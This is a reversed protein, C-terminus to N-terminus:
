FISAHKVSFLYPQTIFYLLFNEEPWMAPWQPCIAVTQLLHLVEAALLLTHLTSREM